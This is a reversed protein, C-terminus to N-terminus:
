PFLYAKATTMVEPTTATIQSISGTKPTFSIRFEEDELVARSSNFCIKVVDGQQLYATKHNSGNIVYEVNYGTAGASTATTQNCSTVEGLYSMSKADNNLIIELLGDNFNLGDSGPALKMEVFFHEVSGGTGNEAFVSNIVAATSVQTTAKSGTSLAKSQLSSATQILVGAAVAAVLIMAIFLILTGIGAEARKTLLTM